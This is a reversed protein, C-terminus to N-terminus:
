NKKTQCESPITFFASPPTTAEFETFMITVDMGHFFRSFVVPKNPDQESVGVEL